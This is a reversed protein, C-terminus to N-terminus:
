RRSCSCGGRHCRSPLFHWEGAKRFLPPENAGPKGRRGGQAVWGGWGRAEEASPQSSRGGGPFCVFSPSQPKRVVEMFTFFFFVLFYFDQKGPQCIREQKMTNLPFGAGM